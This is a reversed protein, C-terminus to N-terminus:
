CYLQGRIEESIAKRGHLFMRLLHSCTSIIAPAASLKSRRQQLRNAYWDCSLGEADVDSDDVFLELGLKRAERRRGTYTHACICSCSRPPCMFCQSDPELAAVLRPASLMFSAESVVCLEVTSKWLEIETDVACCHSHARRM